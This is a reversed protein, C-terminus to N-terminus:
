NLDSILKKEWERVIKRNQAAADCFIDPIRLLDGDHNENANRAMCMVCFGRDECALCKPFDKQRLGRLYLVKPSYEWIEKLSSSKANGVIYDKWGACPYVDGNVVMCATTLCAGCISNNGDTINKPAGINEVIRKQYDKDYIIQNNIFMAMEDFDLRHELNDTAHNTKAMLLYNNDIHVKNSKAWMLVDGFCSQNQKMIPCSIQLPVDNEILKTISEMTQRFSGQLQTISDHIEPKMSYLSVQVSSLPPKKLEAIIENNLNVLNSLLIVYLDLGKAYRLYDLFHDNILPEGGSITLSLLGMECCQKIVDYYLAPEIDYLKDEHPIYCHICRENCRSTIEVQFSVLTPNKTFYSDLYDQSSIKKDNPPSYSYIARNSDTLQAYSFSFNKRNIEEVTNGSSLFGDAELEQYFECMDKRLMDRDVDFFYKSLEQILDEETKPKRSLVRLFCAGSKDTVHVMFNSKNEIFGVESNFVRVFSNDNIMYLM